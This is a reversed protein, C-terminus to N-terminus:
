GNSSTRGCGNSADALEAGQMSTPGTKGVFVLVLVLVLV